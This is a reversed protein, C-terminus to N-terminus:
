QMHTSPSLRPGGTVALSPLNFAEQRFKGLQRRPRWEPHYQPCQLFRRYIAYEAAKRHELKLRYSAEHHAKPSAILRRSKM